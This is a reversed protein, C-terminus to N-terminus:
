KPGELKSPYIVGGLYLWLNMAEVESTMRNNVYREAILGMRM